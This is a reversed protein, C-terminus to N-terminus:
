SAKRETVTIMLLETIEMRNLIGDIDFTRGDFIIRHSPLVGDQWNMTFLMRTRAQVQDSSQSENGQLPGIKAFATTFTTWTETKGGHVDKGPANVEITIPHRFEGPRVSKTM